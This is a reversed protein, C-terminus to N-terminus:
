PKKNEPLRSSTPIYTDEFDEFDEGDDPLDDLQKKLEAIRKKTKSSLGIEHEYEATKNLWYKMQSDLEKVSEVLVQIHRDKLQQAAKTELIENRLAQMEHDKAEMEIALAQQNRIMEEHQQQSDAEKNITLNDVAKLYEDLLEKSTPKYYSDGLGTSQGMLMKVCLSKMKPECNTQFFKRFGHFTKFEHRRVSKMDLKKRLGEARLAREVLVTLADVNMRKPTPPPANTDWLQIMAWSDGNIEEGSKKRFNMWEQLAQFAEPTIFSFYQENEGAYVTINAAVIRDDRKIPEIHKWKLYEWAGIRIGSACTVLVLPKVRRDPAEILTRVEEHTPARDNAFKRGIPMMDTIKKWSLEIDHVDCFFRVPKYFNRVTSASLEGNEARKKKERIFCKLGNQAWDKNEKVRVLFERSQKDIDGKLGLSDFFIKLGTTYSQRTVNALRRDMFDSMPSDVPYELKQAM